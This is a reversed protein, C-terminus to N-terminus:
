GEGFVPALAAEFRDVREAARAVRDPAPADLALRTGFDGTFEM